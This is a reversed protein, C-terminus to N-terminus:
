PRVWTQMRTRAIRCERKPGVEVLGACRLDNLRRMTEVPDLGCRLAIERFTEPQGPLMAALVRQANTSRAGSASHRAAAEHSTDPDTTRAIPPSFVFVVQRAM